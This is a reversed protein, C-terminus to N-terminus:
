RLRTFHFLGCAYKQKALLKKDANKVYDGNDMVASLTKLKLSRLADITTNPSTVRHANFFTKEIGTPLSLYLSGGVAIVRELEALAKLTGKPDLPDGYRGLGIHEVVHLCSLSHVSKDKYPLELVSGARTLLGPLQLNAPRIDVFETPQLSSFFGLYATWSGVDIHKKPKAEMLKRMVWPGQYTYHPDFDTTETKDFVQAFEVFDLEKGFAEKHMKKYEVLDKTYWAPHKSKFLSRIRQMLM